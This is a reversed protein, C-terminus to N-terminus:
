ISGTLSSANAQEGIHTSIKGPSHVNIIARGDLRTGWVVDIRINSLSRLYSRLLKRLWVSWTCVMYIHIFRSIESFTNDETKIGMKPDKDVLGQQVYWWAYRVKGPASFLGTLHSDLDSGIIFVHSFYVKQSNVFYKKLYQM